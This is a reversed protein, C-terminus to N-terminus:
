CTIVHLICSFSSVLIQVGINTHFSISNLMGEIHKSFDHFVKENMPHLVYLENVDCIDNYIICLLTKLDIM